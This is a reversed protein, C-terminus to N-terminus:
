FKAKKRALCILGLLGSGFLWVAAPLPVASVVVNDLGIYINGSPVSIGEITLQMSSNDAIFDFGYTGWINGPDNSDHTFIESLSGISAGVEIPGSCIDVSGSLYCPGNLIGLDMSFTYVQGINFGSLMQSVGKPFGLSTYGTLDMFYNGDSPTLNWNNSPELFGVDNGNISWGTLETSGANFATGGNSDFTVTDAFIEFSSNAILNASAAHSYALLLSSILGISLKFQKEM